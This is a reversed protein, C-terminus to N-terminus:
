NRCSPAKGRRFYDENNPQSFLCSDSASRKKEWTTQRRSSNGETGDVEVWTTSASVSFERLDPVCPCNGEGRPGSSVDSRFLPRPRPILWFGPGIERGACGPGEVDVEPDPAGLRLCAAAAIGLAILKSCAILFRGDRAPTSARFIPFFISAGLASITSRSSSKGAKSATRWPKVRAVDATDSLGTTPDAVDDHFFVPTKLVGGCAASTVPEALPLFVSLFGTGADSLVAAELNGCCFTISEAADSFDDPSVHDVVDAKGGSGVGDLAPIEDGVTRVAIGFVSRTTADGRMSAVAVTEETTATTAVAFAAPIVPCRGSVGTLSTTLSLADMMDMDAEREADRM